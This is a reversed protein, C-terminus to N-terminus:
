HVSSQPSLARISFIAAIVGSVVVGRWEGTLRKGLLRPNWSEPPHFVLEGLLVIVPLSVAMEKSDLGVAFFFSCFPGCCWGPIGQPRSRLYVLFACVYFTFCLTDYLTGDNYSLDRLGGHLALIAIGLFASEADTGLRRFLKWALWLNVALLAWVVEHLPQSRF